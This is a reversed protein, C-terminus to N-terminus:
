TMYPKCIGWCRLIQKQASKIERAAYGLFGALRPRNGDRDDKSDAQLKDSLHSLFEAKKDYRLDGVAVALQKLTFGKISTPHYECNPKKM